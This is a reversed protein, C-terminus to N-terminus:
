RISERVIPTEGGALRELLGRVTGRLRLMSAESVTPLEHYYAIHAADRFTQVLMAIPFLNHTAMTGHLACLELDGVQTAASVRGVNSVLPIPVGPLPVEMPHRETRFWSGLARGRQVERTVDGGFRAAVDWFEDAPHVSTFTVIMDVAMRVDDDALPPEFQRRLSVPSGIAFAQAEAPIALLQWHRAAHAFLMAAGFVGHMTIGRARAAVSCRGIIDAGIVDALLGSRVRSAREPPPGPDQEAVVTQLDPRWRHVQARLRQMDLLAAPWLKGHRGALLADEIEELSAHLRDRHEYRTVPKGRAYTAIEQALRGLAAEHESSPAVFCSEVARLAVPPRARPEAIEELLENML